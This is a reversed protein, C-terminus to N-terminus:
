YRRDINPAYLPESAKQSFGGERVFPLVRDIEADIEDPTVWNHSSVHHNLILRASERANDRDTMRGDIMFASQISVEDAGITYSVSIRRNAYTLSQIHLQQAM